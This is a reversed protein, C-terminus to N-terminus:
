PGKGTSVKVKKVPSTQKTTGAHNTATVTCTYDGDQSPTLTAQTAGDIPEGNRLWQYAVTQAARFLFAGLLDPAFHARRGGQRRPERELDNARLLQGLLGQEGPTSRWGPRATRTPCWTPSTRPRAWATSTRPASREM